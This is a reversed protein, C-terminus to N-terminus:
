LFLTVVDVVVLCEIIPTVFLQRCVLVVWVNFIHKEFLLLEAKVDQGEMRWGHM